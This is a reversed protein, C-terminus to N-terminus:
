RSFVIPEVTGYTQGIQVDNRSADVNSQFLGSAQSGSVLPFHRASRKVQQVPVGARYAVFNLWVDDATPAVDVFATGASRLEALMAAPYLVGSVGTAFNSHTPQTRFSPPWTNYKTLRGSTDVRIQHARHCHIHAPAENWREILSELWWRPYLIDDDATVLVVQDEDVLENVMPFYKTHPGFNETLRLDVGANILELLEPSPSEYLHANDVWLVLRAPRVTGQLISGIALHVSEFRAGHTTMSVVVPQNGDVVLRGAAIDARIKRETRKACLRNITREVLWWLRAWFPAKETRNKLRM